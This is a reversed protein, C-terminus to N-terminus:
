RKSVGGIFEAFAREIDEANAVDAYVTQIGLSEYVPDRLKRRAVIAPPPSTPDVFEGVCALKPLLEKLLHVCKVMLEVSLLMNGTVNGGPRALSAAAGSAVPDGHMLAVIPVTKTAARAAYTANGGKAVIIEVGLNVLEIALAAVRERNGDAYRREIILNQDEIWGLDRLGLELPGPLPAREAM